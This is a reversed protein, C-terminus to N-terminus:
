NPEEQRPLVILEPDEASIYLEETELQAQQLIEIAKSQARFLTRYLKAYDPM